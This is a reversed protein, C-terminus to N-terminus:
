VFVHFTLLDDGLWVWGFEKYENLIRWDKAKGISEVDIKEEFPDIYSWDATKSECNWSLLVANSIIPRGAKVPELAHDFRVDFRATLRKALLHKSILLLKEESQESQHRSRVHQRTRPDTHEHNSWVQTDFFVVLDESGPPYMRIIAIVWSKFKNIYAMCFYLSAGQQHYTTKSQRANMAPLDIFDKM